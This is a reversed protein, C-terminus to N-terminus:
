DIVVVVRNYERYMYRYLMRNDVVIDFSMLRRAVDIQSRSMAEDFLQHLYTSSLDWSQFPLEQFVRDFFRRADRKNAFQIVAMLLIPKRDIVRSNLASWWDDFSWRQVMQQADYPQLKFERQFRASAHRLIEIDKHTIIRTVINKMYFKKMRLSMTQLKRATFRRDFGEKSAIHGIHRWDYLAPNRWFRTSVNVLCGVDVDDLFSLVLKLCDTHSVAGDQLWNRFVRSQKSPVFTDVRYRKVSM